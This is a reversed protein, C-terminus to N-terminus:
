KDGGGDMLNRGEPTDGYCDRTCNHNDVVEHYELTDHEVLREFLRYSYSTSQGICPESYPTISQIAARYYQPAPFDVVINKKCGCATRLTARLRPTRLPGPYATTM